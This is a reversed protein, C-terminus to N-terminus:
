LTSHLTFPTPHLTYPTPHLTYQTTHLTYPTPNSVALRVPMFLRKGKRGTAKGISNVWEKFVAADGRAM